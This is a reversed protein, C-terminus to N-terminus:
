LLFSFFFFNFTFSNGITGSLDVTEIFLWMYEVVCDIEEQQYICKSYLCDVMVVSNTGVFFM